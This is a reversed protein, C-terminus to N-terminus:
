SPKPRDSRHDSGFLCPNEGIRDPKPLDFFRRPPGEPDGHIPDPFTRRLGTKQALLRNERKVLLLFLIGYPSIIDAKGKM